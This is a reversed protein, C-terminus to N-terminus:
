SSPHSTPCINLLFVDIRTRTMQQHNPGYYDMCSANLVCSCTAHLNISWSTLLRILHSARVGHDDSRNSNQLAPSSEAPRLRRRMWARAPFTFVTHTPTTNSVFCAVASNSDRHGLDWTIRFRTTREFHGNQVQVVTLSTKM